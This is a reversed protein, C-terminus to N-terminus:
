AALSARDAVALKKRMREFEEAAQGDYREFREWDGLLEELPTGRAALALTSLGLRNLPATLSCTILTVAVEIRTGPELPQSRRHRDILERVHTRYVEVNQVGSLTESPRLAVFLSKGHKTRADTLGAKELETEAVEMMAFNRRMISGLGTFSLARMMVDLKEPAGRPARKKKRRKKM